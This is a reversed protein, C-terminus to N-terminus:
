SASIMTFTGDGNDQWSVDKGGISIESGVIATPSLAQGFRSLAGKKGACVSLGATSAASTIATLSEVSEGDKGGPDLRLTRYYEGTTADYGYGYIGEASIEIKGKRSEILTQVIVKNQTLDLQVTGDASTIVGAKLLSADLTGATIFDAVIEGDQTIAVKFPGNYGTSSFGLGGNNWRWVKVASNIDPADLSCIEQWNGNSDRIAVMYGNGSTIWNTARDVVNQFYSPNQVRNIAQQQQVITDAINARVSGLTIDKYREHISDYRVAVARASASVGMKPFEVSVTDGLLVRELLAKGRYEETQELQVFEVKWSVTPTGIDNNKMYQQAKERLQDETPQSEFKESLDLPMIRQKIYNGEAYLIKEELEVLVGDANTWYPYVGTYVNACNADQELSTLNKGYRISVGRNEGRHSHLKVTYRDFEYEGGYVDLFSGESGGLLSWISKPVKVSMKAATTKDTWYGFPCDTTAAAKMAELAAPCSEASFPSVVIGRQNYAIHRAYVTVIGNMPKTIRYIEFPQLESVPDAKALLCCELSIDAFHIGDVPYQLELEYQGNLEQPVECLIADSLVGIGNTDFATEGAQYLIPNM